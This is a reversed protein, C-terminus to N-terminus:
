PKFTFSSFPLYPHFPGRAAVPIGRWPGCERPSSNRQFYGRPMRQAAVQMPLTIPHQHLFIFRGVQSEFWWDKTDYALERVVVGNLEGSQCQTTPYFLQEFLLVNRRFLDFIGVHRVPTGPRKLNDYREPAGVSVLYIKTSLKLSQHFHVSQQHVVM